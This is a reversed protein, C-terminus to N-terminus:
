RTRRRMWAIAGLGGILLLLSDPEPVQSVSDVNQLEVSLNGTFNETTNFPNVFPGPNGGAATFNGTGPPDVWLTPDLLNTGGTPTNDQETIVVLYSGAMLDETLASDPNPGDDFALLMPNSDTVPGFLSVVTPFGGLAASTTQLTVVQESNLVFSFLAQSDDTTFSTNFTFTDASALSAALLFLASAFGV